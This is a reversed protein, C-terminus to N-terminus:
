HNNCYDEAYDYCVAIDIFFGDYADVALQALDAESITTLEYVIARIETCYTTVLDLESQSFSLYSPVTSEYDNYEISFYLMNGLYYFNLAEGQAIAERTSLVDSYWRYACLFDYHEWDYLSHGDDTQWMEDEFTIIAEFDGEAYLADLTPFTEQQWILNARIADSDDIDPYLIANIIMPVASIAFVIALVIGTIRLIRKTQASLQRRYSKLPEDALTNLDDKMNDLKQNYAEKAGDYHLTGCYPCFSADDPFTANCNSCIM